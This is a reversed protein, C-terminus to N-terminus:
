EEKDAQGPQISQWIKEALDAEAEEAMAQEADRDIQANRYEALEQESEMRVEKEMAKLLDAYTLRAGIRDGDNRCSSSIARNIDRIGAALENFLTVLEGRLKVQVHRRGEDTTEMTKVRIM